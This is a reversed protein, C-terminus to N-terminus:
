AEVSFRPYRDTTLLFAYAAVRLGWRFVGVVFDFLSRPYRGTLLITFWAVIICCVAAISLFMLADTYYWTLDGYREQLGNLGALDSGVPQVVINAGPRFEAWDLEALPGCFLVVADQPVDPAAIRAAGM